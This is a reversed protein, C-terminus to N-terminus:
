EDFSDPWKRWCKDCVFDSDGLDMVNGEYGCNFCKAIARRTIGLMSALITEWFTLPPTIM